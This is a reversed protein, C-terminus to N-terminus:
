TSFKLERKQNQLLLSCGHGKHGPKPSKLISSTGSQPKLDQDPNPYPGQDKLSKYESTQSEIKIKFTSLVDM